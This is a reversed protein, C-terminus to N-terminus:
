REPKFEVGENVANESLRRFVFTLNSPDPSLKLKQAMRETQKEARQEPTLPTRHKDNKQASVSLSLTLALACAIFQKM